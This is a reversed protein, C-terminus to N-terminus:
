CLKLYLGYGRWEWGMNGQLNFNWRQNRDSGRNPSGLRFTLHQQQRIIDAAIADWADQAQSGYNQVWGQNPREMGILAATAFALAFGANPHLEVLIDDSILEQPKFDGRVRIDFVGSTVQPPTDPLISFETVPKYQNNPTGAIKYDVYRPKMLRKLPYTTEPAGGSKIGYPVLNSEDIGIQVSPVVVVKEIYPACTGELYQVATDYAQNALPSFYEPTLWDLYPDGVLGAVRMMVDKRTQM